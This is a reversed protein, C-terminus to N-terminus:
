PNKTPPNRLLYALRITPILVWNPNQVSHYHHGLWPDVMLSAPSARRQYALTFELSHAAALHAACGSSATM